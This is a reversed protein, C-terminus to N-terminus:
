QTGYQTQIITKILDTVNWNGDCGETVDCYDTDDIIDALAKKNGGPYALILPVYSDSPNLSGHWSKCAVGTTFRKEPHSLGDQGTTNTKDNMILIIDGSRNPDNLGDIRTSANIYEAGDSVDGPAIDYGNFEKYAGGNIRILIKDISANLNPIKERIRYYAVASLGLINSAETYNDTQLFLRLVEATYKLNSEDPIMGAGWGDNGKVYIHAM